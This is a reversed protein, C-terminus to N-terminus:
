YLRPAMRSCTALSGHRYSLKLRIVNDAWPLCAGELSPHKWSVSDVRVTGAERMGREVAVDRPQAVPFAFLKQTGHAMFLFGTVARLVSLL